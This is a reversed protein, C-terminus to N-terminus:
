LTCCVAFIYDITPHVMCSRLPENVIGYNVPRTVYPASLPRAGLFERGEKGSVVMVVYVGRRYVM